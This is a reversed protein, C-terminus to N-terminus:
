IGGEFRAAITGSTEELTVHAALYQALPQYRQLETATLKEPGLQRSPNEVTPLITLALPRGLWARAESEPIELDGLWIQDGLALGRHEMRQGIAQEALTKQDARDILCLRYERRIDIPQEARLPLGFALRGDEVWSAPPGASFAATLPSWIDDIRRIRVLPRSAIPRSLKIETSLPANALTGPPSLFRGVIEERAEVLIPEESTSDLGWESSLRAIAAFTAVGLGVRRRTLNLRRGNVIIETARCDPTLGIALEYEGPVEFYADLRYRDAPRTGADPGEALRPMLPFLAHGRTVHIDHGLGALWGTVQSHPARHMKFAFRTSGQGVPAPNPWFPIENFIVLASFPNLRDLLALEPRVSWDTADEIRNRAPSNWYDHGSFQHRSAALRNLFFWNQPRPGIMLAGLSYKEYVERLFGEKEYNFWGPSWYAAAQRNHRATALFLALCLIPVSILQLAARRRPRHRAALWFLSRLALAALAVILIVGALTALTFYREAPVPRLHRNFSVALSNAFIL